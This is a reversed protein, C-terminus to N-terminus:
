SSVVVGYIKALVTRYEDESIRYLQYGGYSEKLCEKALRDVLPHLGPLRTDVAGVNLYDKKHFLKVKQKIGLPLIKWELMMERSFWEKTAKPFYEPNLHFPEIGRILHVWWGIHNM